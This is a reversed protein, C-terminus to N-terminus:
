KTGGSALRLGVRVGERIRIVIGNGAGRAAGKRCFIGSRTGADLPSQSSARGGWPNLRVLGPDPSSKLNVWCGNRKLNRFGPTRGFHDGSTSGPDGWGLGVIKKQIAFRQHTLLPDGDTLIWAHYRGHSTEIVWCQYKKSLNWAQAPNLDDLFVIPWAGSRSPRFYIDAGKRNEARLWALRKLVGPLDMETLGSQQFKGKRLVGLDFQGVGNQVMETFFREHVEAVRKM